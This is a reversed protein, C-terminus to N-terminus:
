ETYIGIRRHLQVIHCCTDIAQTYPLSTAFVLALCRYLMRWFSPNHRKHSCISNQVNREVEEQCSEGIALNREEISHRRRQTNNSHPHERAFKYLLPQHPQNDISDAYSEIEVLSNRYCSTEIQDVAYKSNNPIHPPQTLRAPHLLRKPLSFTSFFTLFLAKSVKIIPSFISDKDYSYYYQM